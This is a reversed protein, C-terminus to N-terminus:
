NNFGFEVLLELRNTSIEPLFMPKANDCCM